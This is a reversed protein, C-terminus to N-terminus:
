ATKIKWHKIVSDQGASILNSGDLWAIQNICSFHGKFIIPHEGSKQLDWVIINTDISGTALYRAGPAWAVCTVRGSHFTWDKDSAVAFDKDVAYPVVKRAGDTAALFEGGDSFALSVIPASHSLVKVELLAANNFSYIHVKSDQGGVAVLKKAENYSICTVPFNLAHDSLHKGGSFIAVGKLCGAFAVSGDASAALGLPQSSLKTSNPRISDINASINDSVQFTDDWGVSLLSGNSTISMGTIQAKHLLPSLRKSEGSALDWRTINGEFDATCFFSKDKSVAMSTIPKNHGHVSKSVQGLEPDIFNLYGSLAVSILSSASWVIALQQDEVANGFPITKELTRSAVNWIKVSKDGSSTAIKQGCPSWALGFVGGSHAAGKCADDVLEGQKTGDTGEFLVVKGDAGASAFTSGDPSYKVVHVFRSHEHFTTKFKFPPGEFLAVTNDESGSVLRYPRTPRFDISSMPRSQGSLNGNSTGTDFLFVHGFRDKGEGVAALRKSDDSWSIDRIPGAIIPYTGKLIHTKQTTDWIRVNGQQDGSACYFGSPSMKAVTTLTPHESYIDVNNLNNSDVIYVSHGNCYFLKDGKPSATIAAPLGRTTRPLSAFTRVLEYESPDTAM